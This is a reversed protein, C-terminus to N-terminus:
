LGGTFDQERIGLQTRLSGPLARRVREEFGRMLTAQTEPSHRAVGPYQLATELDGLAEEYFKRPLRTPTPGDAAARRLADLAQERRERVSNRELHSFRLSDNEALRRKAYGKVNPNVQDTARNFALQAKTAPARPQNSFFDAPFGQARGAQDLMLEYALGPDRELAAAMASSTLDGSGLTMGRAADQAARMAEPASAAGLEIRGGPLVRSEQGGTRAAISTIPKAHPTKAVTERMRAVMDEYEALAKPAKTGYRRRANQLSAELADTVAPGGYEQIAGGPRVVLQGPKLARGSIRPLLPKSLRELTRLEKVVAEKTLGLKAVAAAAGDLAHHMTDGLQANKHLREPLKKKPTEDEWRKVTAKSMEGRKAKAYFLRRQAESKFPM